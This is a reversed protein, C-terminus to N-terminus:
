TSYQYNCVKALFRQVGNLIGILQEVHYPDAGVSGPITNTDISNSGDSGAPAIGDASAETVTDDSGDSGFLRIGASTTDTDATQHADVNAPTYGGIDESSITDTTTKTTHNGSCVTDPTTDTEPTGSSHADPVHTMVHASEVVDNDPFVSGTIAFDDITTESCINDCSLTDLNAVGITTELAIDTCSIALDAPITGTVIDDLHDPVAIDIHLVTEDADATQPADVNAPTDVGIDASSVIDPFTVVDPTCEVDSDDLCEADSLDSNGTTTMTNINGSRLTDPTTNAEPTGSSHADPVLTMVHASKVFDNDRPVSGTIAVDAAQPADVNAPTDAGIDASSVRDPLTVVDPMCEVDSDDLCEADSLDSNGTTTKTNINGSCLTDPTTNAEPTGSSHADPVHTMVHASEVVDNDPFVSGTIAVDDTTTETCINDCSLTDLNAVGITRELAIDACSIALDTPITGTVIDDLHDLVPIDIDVPTDDADAAQPADVNAPTDVGIDASSVTDLFTADPTCEVDSDDLCEADSLDSDGTTTKRDINDSCGSCVM